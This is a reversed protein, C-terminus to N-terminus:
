LTFKLALIDELEYFHFFLFVSTKLKKNYISTFLRLYNFIGHNQM